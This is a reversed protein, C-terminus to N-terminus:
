STRGIRFVCQAFHWVFPVYSLIIRVVKAKINLPIEIHCKVHGNMPLDAETDVALGTTSVDVVVGRGLRDGSVTEIETFLNAALREARRRDKAM